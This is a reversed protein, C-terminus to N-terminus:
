FNNKPNVQCEIKIEDYIFFEDKICNKFTIEIGLYFGYIIGLLFLIFSVLIFRNM